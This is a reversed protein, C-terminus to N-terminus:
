EGRCFVSTVSAEHRSSEDVEDVMDEEGAATVGPWGTACRCGPLMHPRKEASGQGNALPWHGTLM